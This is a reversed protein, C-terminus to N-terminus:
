RKLFPNSFRKDTFISADSLTKLFDVLGKKETASLGLQMPPLAAIESSEIEFNHNTDLFNFIEEDSMGNLSSLDRLAVDLNPHNKIGSNYHEVVEELTKFRGDHMYPATYEINLLVPVMFKGNDDSVRTVNGVGQDAYDQDLGINFEMDTFGYGDGVGGFFQQAQIHHCNSCQGRGFFIEKGLKESLSLMGPNGEESQRFKNGSFNFCRLFEALASSIRFTDIGPSGFAQEFLQPYYSTGALKKVLGELDDFRMEVHNKVPRLALDMMGGARGDWFVRGNRGFITPTNRTTMKDELGTSFQQNDCFARAQVHCGACSITNNRSLKKDYFLVRGLAAQNDNMSAQYDYPQDPLLPTASYKEEDGDLVEQKRCGIFLALLLTCLVLVQKTKM